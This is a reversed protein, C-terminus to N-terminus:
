KLSSRGDSLGTSRPLLVNSESVECSRMCSGHLDVFGFRDSLSRSVKVNSKRRHDNSCKMLAVVFPDRRFSERRSSLSKKGAAVVDFKEIPHTKPPLPLLITSSSYKPELSSSSLSKSLEKPIGPSLEWSFPVGNFQYSSNPTSSLPTDNTYSSFSSSRFSSSCSSFSSTRSLSSKTRLSQPHKDTSSPNNGTAGVGDNGNIANLLIFSSDM